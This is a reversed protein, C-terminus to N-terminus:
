LQKQEKASMEGYLATEQSEQTLIEDELDVLGIHLFERLHDYYTVFNINWGYFECIELERKKITVEDLLYDVM